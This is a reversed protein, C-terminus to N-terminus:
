AAEGRRALAMADLRELELALGLSQAIGHARGLPDGTLEAPAVGAQLRWARCELAQYGHTRTLELAEGLLLQAAALGELAEAKVLLAAARARELRLPLAAELAQDAFCAAEELAGQLLAAEARLALQGPLALRLGATRALDLGEEIVVSAAAVEGRALQVGALHHGAVWRDWANGTEAAVRETAQAIELAEDRRGLQALSSGLVALGDVALTGTGGTGTIRLGDRYAKADQELEGVAARFDGAMALAHGLAFRAIAALEEDKLATAIRAAARAHAMAARATGGFLAEVRSRQARLQCTLRPLAYRGARSEADRLDAMVRPVEGLMLWAWSRLRRLGITAVDATVDARSRAAADIAKGLLSVAERYAAQEIAAKGAAGYHHLAKGWHEAGAAHYGAQRPDAGASGSEAAALLRAHVERRRTRLLSEYAADRMLAHRFAYPHGPQRGHPRVLLDLECLQDLADCVDAEDAGAVEALLRPDFERGICAALQLLIRDPGIRDLRAMLTDHLSAPLPADSPPAITGGNPAMLAKTLEEVFLPVGDTRDLVTDLVPGTDDPVLQAVLAAVADRDLRGLRLHTVHDAAPLGLADHDRATVLLLIALGEIRGTLLRVLELTTPDAWHADELLLVLPRRGALGALEVVLGDLLRRRRGEGAGPVANLAAAGTADATLDLGERRLTQALEAGLGDALSRAVPWLPADRHLASAQWCLQGHAESPLSGMFAHVLRSKGIGPEGTVLVVRGRGARATEWADGLRRLEGARGVLPTLEASHLAEFRDRRSSEGLVQWALVRGEVGKLELSRVPALTFLEALLRRTSEAIVVGDAPASVQLRAAVNPTDGIVAEEQAAGAGVLDGVVVLGTAIGARAALPAGTRTPLRRVAAVVALAARVAREASDEQAQPWGFYALVGDGMLKALYGGFRELEAAVAAQYARIVERMVEPDLRASLATSGVLDVFMVTLQRREPLRDAEPRRRSRAVAKLLRRREGLNLGLEKLDSDSLEPLVDPGIGNSRFREVHRELGLGALWSALDTM